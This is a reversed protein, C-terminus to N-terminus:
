QSPGARWSLSCGASLSQIELNGGIVSSRIYGAFGAMLAGDGMTSVLDERMKGTSAFGVVTGGSDVFEILDPMLGSQPNYLWGGVRVFESTGNLAVVEDVSGSCQSLIPQEANKGIKGAMTSYPPEGFALLGMSAAQRGILSVSNTDPRLSAILDADDIGLTLAMMAIKTELEPM